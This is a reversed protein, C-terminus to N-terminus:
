RCMTFPSLREKYPVLGVLTVGINSRERIAGVEGGDYEEGGGTEMRRGGRCVLKTQEVHRTQRYGELFDCSAASTLACFLSEPSEALIYVSM